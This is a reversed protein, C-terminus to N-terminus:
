FSRNRGWWQYFENAIQVSIGSGEGGEEVLVTVTIKPNEAPAFSTFWAHNPKTSNWQATGTKGAAAFPLGSLQRCSGYEVCERMGQRIIALNTASAVERRVPPAEVATRENTVPDILEKVLHPRHLTGGNAVVGTTAAIQLPTVLLDGQGISLNYTDGIYWLEKKTEEKWKRSPVFGYQEGPLDIGLTLGLGFKRLYATIREVGLGNVPGYGGGIYYYFTNVSWALSKSVNTTGHGGPKWDPFYWQGVRVGGTSEFSTNVGIINEELAAAAVVPKITSGSPYLGAIARNFLPQKEDALYDRYTTSAIGGSFDNNDYGPLSVLAIIGGTLADTVVAAARGSKGAGSVYHNMINELKEQAELDLTLGLHKGAVPAVEALITQEKGSSNVQLRRRGPVGRLATEYWKELGSKGLVDTPLYGDRYKDKLEEPNLKGLYGLVHSLSLPLSSTTTRATLGYFRKSGQAILLGPVAASEVRLRLATEYDIDERLIVSDSQYAKYEAILDNIEAVSVGSLESIRAVAAARAAVNRAFPLDNPTIYLSFSPINEVLQQNNRDFILGREAHIPLVRESNSIAMARYRPGAWIQLYIIRALLSFLIFAIALSLWVVRRPKLGSGIHSTGRSVFDATSETIDPYFSEEVWHLRFRGPVSWYSIVKKQRAEPAFPDIDDM